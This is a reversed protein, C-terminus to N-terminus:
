VNNLNIQQNTKIWNRQPCKTLSQLIPINDLATDYILYLFLLHVSNQNLNVFHDATEIVTAESKNSKM